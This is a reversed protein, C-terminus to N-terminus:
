RMSCPFSRLLGAVVLMSPWKRKRDFMYLLAIMVAAAVVDARGGTGLRLVAFAVFPLLSWWRFRGLFAIIAVIPALMMGAGVFYGNGVRLAGAGSKPDVIRITEGSAVLDWQWVLSCAALTGLPLAVLWFRRLLAGREAVDSVDQRFELPERAFRLSVALFAVLGLNTCILVRAKDWPAPTFNISLYLNDFDYYWAFIPRVVFVLGHFLLYFTAPHFVSASPHRLYVYLATAYVLVSLVLLSVYM